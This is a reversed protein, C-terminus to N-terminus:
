FDTCLLIKWMFRYFWQNVKLIAENNVFWGFSDNNKTCNEESTLNWNVVNTLKRNFNGALCKDLLLKLDTRLTFNASKMGDKLELSARLCLFAKCGTVSVPKLNLLQENMFVLRSLRRKETQITDETTDQDDQHCKVAFQPKLQLVHVERPEVPAQAFLFIVTDLFDSNESRFVDVLNSTLNKYQRCFTLVHKTVDASDGSTASKMLECVVMPIHGRAYLISQLLQEIYEALKHCCFVTTKPKIDITLM